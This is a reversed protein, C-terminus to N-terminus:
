GWAKFKGAQDPIRLMARELMRCTVPLVGFYTCNLRYSQAAFLPDDSFWFLPIQPRIKRAGICIEMGQAGPEAVIVLEWSQQALIRRFRDYDDTHDLAAPIEPAVSRITDSLSDYTQKERTFILVRM